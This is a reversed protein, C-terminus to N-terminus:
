NFVLREVSKYMNYLRPFSVNTLWGSRFMTLRFAWVPDFSCRGYLDGQLLDNYAIKIDWRGYRDTGVKHEKAMQDVGHREEVHLRQRQSVM